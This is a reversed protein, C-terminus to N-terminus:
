KALCWGNSSTRPLAPANAVFRVPPLAKGVVPVAPPLTKLLAIDINAMHTSLVNAAIRQAEDLLDPESNKTPRCQWM